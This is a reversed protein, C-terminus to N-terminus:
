RIGWAKDEASVKSDMIQPAVWSRIAGADSKYVKGSSEKYADLKEIGQKLLEENGKFYDALLSQYESELLLVNKAYSKKEIRKEEVRNEEISYMCKNVDQLCKHVDESYCPINSAKTRITPIVNVEKWKPISLYNEKTEKDQYYFILGQEAIDMLMDSVNKVKIKDRGGFLDARIDEPDADM